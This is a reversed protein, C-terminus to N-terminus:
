DHLHFPSVRVRPRFNFDNGGEVRQDNTPAIADDSTGTECFKGGFCLVSQLSTLPIFPMSGFFDQMGYM